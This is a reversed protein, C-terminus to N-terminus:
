FTLGQTVASVPTLFAVLRQEAVMAEYFEEADPHPTHAVREYLALLDRGAQDGPAASVPGLVSTCAIAAYQWFTDGLVHLVVSPHRRMNAVKARTATVSIQATVGDFGFGVNSTQPTGDRRATALVAQHRTQLWQSLQPDLAYESDV